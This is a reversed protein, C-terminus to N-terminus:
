LLRSLARVGSRLEPASSLLGEREYWPRGRLTYGLASSPDLAIARDFTALADPYQKLNMYARGLNCYSIERPVADISKQFYEISKETEWRRAYILGINNLAEAYHPDCEVAKLYYSLSKDFDKKENYLYGLSYLARPQKPYVRLVDEWLAFPDNFLNGRHYALWGFFALHIGMLGVCLLHTGARFLRSM